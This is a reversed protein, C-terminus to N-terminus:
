FTLANKAPTVPLKVVKPGVVSFPIVEFPSGTNINPDELENPTECVKSARFCVSGSIGSSCLNKHHHYISDNM